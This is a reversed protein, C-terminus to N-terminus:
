ILSYWEMFEKFNLFPNISVINLGKDILYKKYKLLMAQVNQPHADQTPAAYGTVNQLGFLRMGDVGCMIINRAGIHYAFSMANIATTGGITLTDPLDDNIILNTFSQEAHRYFWYRGNFNHLAQKKYCTDYESIVLKCGSDICDQALLFHHAVTFDVPFIRFINNIGITIKNEFFDKPIYNMSAGSGLIYLDSGKYIDKFESIDKCLKNM